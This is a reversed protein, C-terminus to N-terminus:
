AKNDPQTSRRKALAQQLCDLLTNGHFNHDVFGTWEGNVTIAEKPDGEENPQHVTVSEAIGGRLEELAEMTKIWGGRVQLEDYVDMTWPFLKRTIVKMAKAYDQHEVQAHPDDRLAFFKLLNNLDWCTYIETYIAVPLVIRAQERAVGAALLEKYFGYIRGMMDKAKFHLDAHWKGEEVEVSSQRNKTDQKRWHVPIFFEDPLETYRASVENLNQMRHRVFQRMVFIPMKINFKVKCMELPSTHANLMLYRLLKKDAEDGKSPSHYSIRAAGVIDRDTGMRDVFRVFGHNHVPLTFGSVLLNPRVDVDPVPYAKNMPDNPDDLENLTPQDDDNM